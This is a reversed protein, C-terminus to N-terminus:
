IWCARSLPDSPMSGPFNQFNANRLSFRSATKIFFIFEHHTALWEVYGGPDTGSSSYSTWLFSGYERLEKCRWQTSNMHLITSICTFTSNLEMSTVEKERWGPKWFAGESILHINNCYPMALGWKFFFIGNSFNSVQVGSFRVGVM